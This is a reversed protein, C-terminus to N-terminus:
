PKKRIHGHRMAHQFGKYLADPNRKVAGALDAPFNFTPKYVNMRSSSVSSSNKTAGAMSAMAAAAGGAGMQAALYAPGQQSIANFFSLREPSIGINWSGIGLLASHLAEEILAGPNTVARVTDAISAPLVMERKHILAVQDSPVEGWGGAASTLVGFAMIAAFVVAAAAAGLIPGIYPISAMASYAGAAGIKADNFIQKLGTTAQTALGKAASTTQIMDRAASGASAASTRATEQTQGVVTQKIQELVWRETMQLVKGIFNSAMTNWIQKLGTAFSQTKTLMGTIANQFGSTIPNLISKWKNEIEDAAKIEVKQTDRWYKDTVARMKAYIEELKSPDHAPNLLLLDAEKQYAELQAKYREDLYRKELALAEQQNSGDLSNRAQLAAKQMEYMSEQHTRESEAIIKQRRDEIRQWNEAEAQQEATMNRYLDAMKHWVQWWEDSGQQTLALKSAWFEYDKAISWTNLNESLDKIRQLEEQWQALLDSGGSGKGQNGFLWDPASLGAGAGAGESDGKAGGSASPANLPHGKIYGSLYDWTKTWTKIIDEGFKGTDKNAEESIAKLQARVSDIVPTKVSEVSSTDGKSFLSYVFGLGSYKPLSEWAKKGLGAAGEQLKSGTEKLIGPINEGIVTAEAALAAIQAIVTKLGSALSYCMAYIAALARTFTAAAEPGNENLWKALDKLIPLLANGIQQSLGEFLLKVANIEVKYARAARSGEESLELHYEKALQKAREMVENNLKQFDFMEKAGKGFLAMSVVDQDLGEKYDKVVRLANEFVQNGPLMEGTVSRYAVGLKDLVEPNTRLTRVLKMMGTEAEDSTKGILRLAANFDSAEVTTMGFVRSLSKVESAWNTVSSVTEGFFKGGGLLLMIRGFSGTLSSIGVFSSSLSSGVSLFSEKIERSTQQARASMGTLSSNMNGLSALVSAQLGQVSSIVDQTNAEFKIQVADDSM